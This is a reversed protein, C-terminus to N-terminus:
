RCQSSPIAILYIFYRLTNPGSLRYKLMIHFNGTYVIHIIETTNRSQKLQFDSVKGGIRIGRHMLLFDLMNSKKMHGRLKLTRTPSRVLSREWEPKLLYWSYCPPPSSWSHLGGSPPIPRAM